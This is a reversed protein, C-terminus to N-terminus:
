LQLQNEKEQASVWEAAWSCEQGGETIKSWGCEYSGPKANLIQTFASLPFGINNQSKLLEGLSAKDSLFKKSAKKYECAGLRYLILALRDQNPYINEAKIFATMIQKCFEVADRLKTEDDRLDCPKIKKLEEFFEEETAYCKIEEM